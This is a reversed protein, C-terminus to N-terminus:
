SPIGGFNTPRSYIEGPISYQFIKTGLGYGQKNVWRRTLEEGILMILEISNSLSSMGLMSQKVVSIIEDM